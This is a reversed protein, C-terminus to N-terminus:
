HNNEIFHTLVVKFPVPSDSFIVNCLFFKSLKLLQDQFVNGTLYLIQEWNNLKPVIKFAKPLKGSRYKILVDRVGIYLEKVKPDIDQMVLGLLPLPDSNTYM